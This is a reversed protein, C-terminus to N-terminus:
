GTKEMQLQRIVALRCKEIASMIESESKQDDYQILATKTLDNGEEAVAISALEEVADCEVERTALVRDGEYNIFVRAGVPLVGNTIGLTWVGSAGIWLLGGDGLPTQLGDFHVWSPTGGVQVDSPMIVDAGTYVIRLFYNPDNGVSPPVPLLLSALVEHTIPRAGPSEFTFGNDQVQVTLVHNSIARRAM